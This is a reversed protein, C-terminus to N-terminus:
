RSVPRTGARLGALALAILEDRLTEDHGAPVTGQLPFLGMEHARLRLEDAAGALLQLRLQLTDHDLHPLLAQLPEQSQEVSRNIREVARRRLTPNVLPMLARIVTRAAGPQWTARTRWLPELYARVLAELRAARTQVALAQQVSTARADCVADVNLEVLRALLAELGGFHYSVLASNLGSARAIARITVAHGGERLVIGEAAAVLKEPATRPVPLPIQQAATVTM